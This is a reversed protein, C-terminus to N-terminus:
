GRFSGMPTRAGGAIVVNRLQKSATSSFSRRIAFTINTKMETSNLILWTYKMHHKNQCNKFIALWPNLRYTFKKTKLVLCPMNDPIYPTLTINFSATHTLWKRNISLHTYFNQRWYLYSVIGHKIQRITDIDTRWNFM